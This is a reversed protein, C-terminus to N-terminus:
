KEVKGFTGKRIERKSMKAVRNDSMPVLIETAPPKKWHKDILEGPVLKSLDTKSKLKSSFLRKSDVHKVAERVFAKEDLLKARPRSDVMKFNHFRYGGKARRVAEERLAELHKEIIPIEEFIIEIEDNTLESIPRELYAYQMTRELRARCNGRAPCYRCWPGANPLTNPDDAEQVSRFFVDGFENMQDITYVETRIPGDRHDYRPQIITTHVEDIKDWADFTDLSAVGYGRLQWNDVVEVPGRGYKFDITHLIRKKPVLFTTDATGYVDNRGLGSMVVRKELMPKVGYKLALNRNYNVDIAIGEAMETDVKFGNFELDILDEPRVGFHLSFERGEHAATGEEAAENTTSPYPKGMRISAPCHGEIWRGSSSMSYVSHSM